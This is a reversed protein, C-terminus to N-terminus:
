WVLIGLLVTFVLSIILVVRATNIATKKDVGKHMDLFLFRVGSCIHHMFGWILLLYFLKMVVCSCVGYFTEYFTPNILSQHLVWLMIPIAIFLILGSVRHLISIKAMISMRPGLIFLDLFKPRKTSPM